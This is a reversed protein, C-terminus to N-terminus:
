NVFEMIIDTDGSPTSYDYKECADTLREAAINGDILLMLPWDSESYRVGRVAAWLDYASESMGKYHPTDDLLIHSIGWM